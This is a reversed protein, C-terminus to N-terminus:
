PKWQAFYVAGDLNTLQKPEGSASDVTFLQPYKGVFSVFSLRKGDPSWRVRGCATKRLTVQKFESGDINLTWVNPVGDRVAICAIRKGDPSIHPGDTSGHADRPSLRFEVYNNGETIRRLNKGDADIRYLDGDRRLFVITKGDPTFQPAYSDPHDPTLDLVANDALRMIKLRYGSAPGSCAIFDNAPSLAAMYLYGVEPAVLRPNAGDSGAIAIRAGDGGGVAYLMRTGDRSLAYGYATTWMPGLRTADGVVEFEGGGAPLRYIRSTGSFDSQFYIWKRDVSFFPYDTNKGPQAIKTIHTGDSRVTYIAGVVPTRPPGKPDDTTFYEGEFMKLSFALTADDADDAAQSATAFSLGLAAAVLWKRIEM